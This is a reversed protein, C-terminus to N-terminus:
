DTAHKDYAPHGEQRLGSDTRHDTPTDDAQNAAARHGSIIVIPINVRTIPTIGVQNVPHDASAHDSENNTCPAARREHLSPVSEHMWRSWLRDDFWDLSQM